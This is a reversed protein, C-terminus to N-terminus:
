GVRLRSAGTQQIREQFKARHEARSAWQDDSRVALASSGAPAAYALTGLAIRCVLPGIRRADISLVAVVGLGLEGREDFTESRVGVQLGAQGGLEDVRELTTRDLMRVVNGLENLTDRM